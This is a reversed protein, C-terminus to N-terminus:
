IDTMPSWDARLGRFNYALIYLHQIHDSSFIINKPTLWGTPLFSINLFVDLLRAAARWLGLGPGPGGPGALTAWPFWPGRSFVRFSPGVLGVLGLLKWSAGGGLHIPCRRLPWCKGMRLVRRHLFPM